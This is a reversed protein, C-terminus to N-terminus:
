RPPQTGHIRTYRFGAYVETAQHQVRPADRVMFCGHGTRDVCDFGPRDSHLQTAPMSGAFDCTMGLVQLRATAASPDSMAFRRPHKYFTHTFLNFFM